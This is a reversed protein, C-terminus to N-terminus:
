SGSGAEHRRKELSRTLLDEHRRRLQLFQERNEQRREQMKQMDDGANEAFSASKAGEVGVVMMVVRPLYCAMTACADRASELRRWSRRRVIKFLTVICADYLLLLIPAALSSAALAFSARELEPHLLFTYALLLASQGAELAFQAGVLLTQLRDASPSMQFVWLSVSVQVAMISLVQASAGLSGAELNMGTGLGNLVAVLMQGFMVNVEFWAVSATSGGSRALLSFGYADLM